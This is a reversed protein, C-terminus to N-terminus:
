VAPPRLQGGSGLVTNQAPFCLRAEQPYHDLSGSFNGWAGHRRRYDKVGLRPREVCASGGKGEAGPAGCVFVSFQAM